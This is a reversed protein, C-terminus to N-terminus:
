RWLNLNKKAKFIVGRIYNWLCKAFKTVLEHDLVVALTERRM